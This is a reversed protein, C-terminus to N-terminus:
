DLDSAVSSALNAVSEWLAHQTNPETATAYTNLTQRVSELNGGEGSGGGGGPFLVSPDGRFASRGSTMIQVCAPNTLLGYIAVVLKEFDAETISFASDLSRNEKAQRLKARIAEIESVVDEGNLSAAEVVITLVVNRMITKGNEVFPLLTEIVETHRTVADAM